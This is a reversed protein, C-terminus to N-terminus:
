YPIVEVIFIILMVISQILFAAAFVVYGASYLTLALLGALVFFIFSSEKDSIVGRASLIAAFGLLVGLAGTAYLGAVMCFLGALICWINVTNQIYKM